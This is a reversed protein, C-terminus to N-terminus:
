VRRSPPFSTFLFNSTTSASLPAAVANAVGFISLTLTCGLWGFNVPSLGGSTSTEIQVDMVDILNVRQEALGPANVRAAVGLRAVM